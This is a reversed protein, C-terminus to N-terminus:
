RQHNARILEIGAAHASPKARVRAELLTEAMSFDGSRAAAAILTQEIVDRQANSGGVVHAMPRIGVLRHFAGGADGDAFAAFGELLELGAQDIARSNTGSTVGRNDLILRQWLDREGALGAAMVAHWDNFVYVPQGLIGVIDAALTRARDQVDVGFLRLRWLLSAADAVDLWQASRAGRLPGDYIELADDFELLDLHWLAMHWWLHIAFYSTSWYQASDRLFEIGPGPFGGTDFVHAQAHVAWIDRPNEELALRAQERAEELDGNEELGFAHIGRVFGSGPNTSPWARQVRDVVERLERQQGIFFYLDQAVKLALLDHPDHLLARELFSAARDWEGKAWSQAALAHLLEREGAELNWPDLGALIDQARDFGLASTSYLALYAHLVRALPFGPDAILAEEALAVPDGSLSVLQEVARNFTAVAAPDSAFVYSGWPDGYAHLRQVVTMREDRGETGSVIVTELL